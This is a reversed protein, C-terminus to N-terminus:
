LNLAQELVRDESLNGYVIGGFDPEVIQLAPSIFVGYELAMEPKQNVDIVEINFDCDPHKAQLRRLNEHAILSNAANGTVYLRLAFHKSKQRANSLSNTAM